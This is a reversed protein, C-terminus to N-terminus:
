FWAEFQYGFSTGDNQNRFAPAQTAIADKNNNNWFSQSLFARLVPRGWISKRISLQPAITVRALERAGVREAGSFENDNKYRSYGAEFVWQFRDSVFYIPRIGIEQFERHNNSDDETGNDGIEAAVGLMVAWRDSVDQHWDEVIRLTWAKNQSDDNAPLASKAYINFDKMTGKGYLLAFNNQGGWWLGQLRSAISYGNTSRYSTMGDNSEPAWAYVAWFNLNHDETVPITTWRLDVAQLVPLGVSTSLDDNAQVLHAVAFRGEGLPINEIGAGVGSMDAYYYWDFIYLDVDRYFRKGIWLDGPIETFGGAKVFAEIQSMDRNAAPEWQRTGKSNFVLRMQTKFYVSDTPEPKKHHFILALESYFGCENGLRLFNGPIGTNFFCDQKGGELNIGTGGRLYGTFEADLASAFNGSFVLMLFLTISKM